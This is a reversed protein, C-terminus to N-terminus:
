LLLYYLRMMRNKLETDKVKNIIDRIILPTDKASQVEILNYLLDAFFWVTDNMQSSEKPFDLYIEYIAELVFTLYVYGRILIENSARKRAAWDKGTSIDLRLKFVQNELVDIDRNM